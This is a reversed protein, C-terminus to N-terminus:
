QVGLLLVWLQFGLNIQMVVTPRTELFNEIQESRSSTCFLCAAKVRNKQDDSAIVVLGIWIRNRIILYHRSEEDVRAVLVSQKFKQTVVVVNNADIIM